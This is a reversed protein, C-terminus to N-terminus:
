DWSNITIEQKASPALEGEGLWLAVHAVTFMGIEGTTVDIPIWGPRRGAWAEVWHHRIWYNHELYFGGVVRAPIGVSRLMAAALRSKALASGNRSDLAIMASSTRTTTEISDFAFRAINTIACWFDECDEALQASLGAIRENDSQIMATPSLTGQEPEAIPGPPFTEARGGSYDMRELKATGSIRGGEVDGKFSQNATSLHPSLGEAITLEIELELKGVAAPNGIQANAPIHTKAGTKAMLDAEPQAEIFEAKDLEATWVATFGPGKPSWHVIRKNRTRMFFEAEIGGLDAFFKRMEGAGEGEIHGPVITLPAARGLQAQLGTVVFSSDRSPDISKALLVWGEPTSTDIIFLPKAVPVARRASDITVVATDGELVVEITQKLEYGSFMEMRYEIPSMDHGLEWNSVFRVMGPRGGALINMFTEASMQWGGALPRLSYTFYGARQEGWHLIYHNEEPPFDMQSFASVALFLCVIIIGAFKM